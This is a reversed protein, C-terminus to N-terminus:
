EVILRVCLGIFAGTTNRLRRPRGFRSFLLFLRLVCFVFVPAIICADM